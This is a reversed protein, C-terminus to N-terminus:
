LYGKKILVNFVKSQIQTMTAPKIIFDDVGARIANVVAERTSEGTLFVFAVQELNPNARVYHLLELGSAGPMHWDAVVLHVPDVELKLKADEVGASVWIRSFGLSKLIERVQVRMSNVDDVVLISLASRDM